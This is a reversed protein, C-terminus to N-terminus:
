PAPPYAGVYPPGGDPMNLLARVNAPLLKGEKGGPASPLLHYDGLERSRFLPGDYGSLDRSGAAFGPLAARLDELSRFVVQCRENPAPSWLILPHDAPGAERVFVNHDFEATMPQDLQKCLTDTQWVFLLPRSFTREGAFLNNAVVHGDREDIAPGTSPHWGFHDGLATRANRGICAVSNVFTNQYILVDSSNLIMLGHDCNVFVNGACVAGKSIEFFFGNESPWLQRSSFPSDPRGVSEIWNNVFVGDVNGVDYWIGNSYPQDIVLNDRCTV